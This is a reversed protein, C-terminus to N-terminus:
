SCGARRSEQAAKERVARPADPFSKGLERFTACAEPTKNLAALSMGLKLLTDPAKPGTKNRQYGDVFIETARTYDGRAYFSEGLWYRANEALPDQPFRDVFAGFAEAAQQYQGQRLLDYAEAYAQKSGGVAAAGGAMGARTSGDSATAQRKDEPAPPPFVAERNGPSAATPSQREAGASAPSDQGAGADLRYDVDAVLTDLKENIQRVQYALDEVRGTLARLESEIESQRVDMRAAAAGSGGVGGRLARIQQELQQVRDSLGSPDRSQALASPGALALTVTVLFVAGCGGILGVGLPRAVAM